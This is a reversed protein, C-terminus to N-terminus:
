LVWPIIRWRVRTRYAAYETLHAELRIEEGAAKGVLVATLVGSLALVVTNGDVLGLGGSGLVLGGYIPHRVVRYIGREVLVADSRPAPFPSLNDGLTLMGSAALGLGAVLLIGGATVAAAGWDDGWRFLAAAIGGILLFQAAVWWGGLATFRRM